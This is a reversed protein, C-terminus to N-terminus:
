LAGKLREFRDSMNKALETLAKQLTDIQSRFAREQAELDGKTAYNGVPPVTPAPPTAPPVPVGPNILSPNWTIGLYGVVGRCVGKALRKLNEEQKLFEYDGDIFGCEILSAVPITDHVFGLRGHNNTTEDKNGRNKLGTEQVVADLIFQSLKDSENPGGAYNWAEIGTGGGANIHVEVCVDLQNARDNIYKITQVLDLNDPINIVGVGHARLYDTAFATIKKTLEAEKLDKHVAGPDTNSHGASLAISKM